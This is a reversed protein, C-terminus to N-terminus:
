NKYIKIKGEKIYENSYYRINESHPYKVGFGGVTLIEVVRGFGATFSEVIDNLQIDLNAKM